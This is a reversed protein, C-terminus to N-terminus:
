RNRRMLVFAIVLVIVAVVVVGAIIFPLASDGTCALGATGFGM